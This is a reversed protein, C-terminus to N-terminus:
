GAQSGQASSSLTFRYGQGRVTDIPLLKKDPDLKKRLRGVIVELVNSDKEQDEAYLHETLENKSIVRGANLMFYELMNYELATLTLLESGLRASKAGLDVAIPGCELNSRTFGAARRLLARIRALLEEGNFPKVMYDDAGLELGAVKDQWSSRATLILVPFSRENDRWNTILDEGSRDPLGLDVIAADIPYEQGLFHGDRGNDAADVVYGDGRLLQCLNERLETNDEVVLIRM